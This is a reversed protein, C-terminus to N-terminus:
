RGPRAPKMHRRRRMVAAGRLASPSPTFTLRDRRTLAREADVRATVDAVIRLFRARVDARIPPGSM